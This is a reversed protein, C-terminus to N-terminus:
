GGQAQHGAQLPQSPTAKRKPQRSPLGCRKLSTPSKAVAPGAGRNDSGAKKRIIDLLGERYEDKTSSRSSSWRWRTLPSAMAFGQEGADSDPVDLEKTSRVEDAYYMTELAILGTTRPHLNSKQCRWKAIAVAAKM